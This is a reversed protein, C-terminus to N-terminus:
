ASWHAVVLSCVRRVEPDPDVTAAQELASRAERTGLAALTTAAAKRAAANPLGLAALLADNASERRMRALASALQAALEDDATGLAELIGEIRGPLPACLAVFARHMSGGAAFLGVLARTAEVGPRQALIGMATAAVGEDGDGAARVLAPLAEPASLGAIASVAVIRTATDPSTMAAVLHRIAEPRGTLGLGILAARQVDADSEGAAKQLAASAIEGHLCSLAEVAGVRVHGAEDDLLAAIRPAAEEHGLKGLSKCAYYRVWADEDGLAAELSAVVRREASSQGLARAAAARARPDPASATALLADLAAPADLYPLGALAVERVRADADGLADLFVPLAADYGFYGLIRLAARRVGPHDSRAAELALAETDASGLSQIASSAAHVVRGNPDALLPFLVRVAGPDGIRALADCAAARVEPADDGLCRVVEETAASGMVLPLLLLRRPGDGDRLADLVRADSSQGLHLLADAAATAVAPPSDLLSRLDPIAADSGLASLVACIAVQEAQGAGRLSQVFRRVTAPVSVSRQLTEDVPAVVGYLEAHRDRLEALALAVARVIADGPRALLGALPVVAARNGTRGLARAAELMYRVDLLLEALPEVARPDGSRGLVDIAPFTRFFNGSTVVRVLAEVVRRGGIRGLAEIAAVAVNDDHYSILDALRHLATTSKRRGLIQAADVVVAPDDADALALVEADVSGTSAALADVAAAIRAEDDRRSRLAECIPGVAVDGLAALAAVVGRRVTWSPDDLMDVLGRVGAAGMAELKRVEDARQREADSLTFSGPAAKM